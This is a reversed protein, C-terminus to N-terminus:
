LWLWLWDDDDWIDDWIDCIDCLIFMPMPILIDLLRFLVEPDAPFLLLLLRGDGALMEWADM